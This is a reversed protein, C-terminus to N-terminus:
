RKEKRVHAFMKQINQSVDYREKHTSSGAYKNEVADVYFTFTSDDGMYFEEWSEDTLWRKLNLQKIALNDFSLIMRKFYLPLRIYWLYKKDEVEKSHFTKGKRFEKYGLILVKQSYKEIEDLCSLEHVGMIVHFVLNDTLKSFYELEKKHKGSYTIGLGKILDNKVLYTLEDKFTKLHLENVTMNCIIGNRKALELFPRLNPHSLPNGGGIALEVGPPLQTLLFEYDELNAHNGKKNSNEHCWKCYNSLDCYNTIKLDISEPFVPKPADKYERVKTGDSYITVRTNGNEYKNLIM